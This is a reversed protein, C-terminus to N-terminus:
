MGPLSSDNQQNPEEPKTPFATRMQPQAHSDCVFLGWIRSSKVSFVSSGKNNNYMRSSKTLMRTCIQGLIIFVSQSPLVTKARGGKAPFVGFLPIRGTSFPLATREGSDQAQLTNDTVFILGCTRVSRQWINSYFVRSM